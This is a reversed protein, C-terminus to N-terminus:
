LPLLPAIRKKKLVLDCYLKCYQYIFICLINWPVDNECTKINFLHKQIETLNFKAKKDQRQKNNNSKNIVILSRFSLALETGSVM